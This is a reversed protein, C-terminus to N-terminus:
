FFFTCIYTKSDERNGNKIEGFMNMETLKSRKKLCKRDNAGNANAVLKVQM